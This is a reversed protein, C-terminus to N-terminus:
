RWVAEAHPEGAAGQKVGLLYAELLGSEPGGEGSQLCLEAGRFSM